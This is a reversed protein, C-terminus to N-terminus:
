GVENMEATIYQEGYYADYVVARLLDLLEADSSSLNADERSQYVKGDGDAFYRDSDALAVSQCLEILRWYRSMPVGALRLVDAGLSAYGTNATKGALQKRLTRDNSWILYDTTYLTQLEELSIDSMTATETLGLLHFINEDEGVSLNPRHDGFAVLLVPEDLGSLRKTLEGLARDAYVTGETVCQFIQAAEGTLRDSTATVGSAETFKTDVYPQHNEMTIGFLFAREGKESLRELEDCLLDVFYDDAIYAGHFQQNEMGDEFVTEGFGLLPFNVTRNYLESTHAHYAATHYGSQRFLEPMAALRTYDAEPLFCVNVGYNLYRSNIGSLVGMEIYGTGFGLYRSYFTGTLSDCSLKHFNEVPDESFSVNPLRTLDFQSEQQLVIVHPLDEAEAAAVEEEALLEDIRTLVNKMYAYSYHRLEEKVSVSADRWIGAVAGYASYTLETEQRTQMDLSFAEGLPTAGNGFVFIILFSLSFTLTLFRTRQGARSLAPSLTWLLVAIVAVAALLWPLAASVPLDGAVETVSRLTGLLRLDELTIPAGNIIAKCYNAFGFLIATLSPLLFSVSLERTLLFLFFMVSALLIATLYLVDAPAFVALRALRVSEAAYASFVGLFLFLVAAAPLGLWAPLRHARSFCRARHLPRSIIWRFFARLDTLLDELRSLLFLFFARVCLFLFRLTKRGCLALFPLAKERCFRLFAKGERLSFAGFIRLERWSFRAFRCLANGLFRVFHAAARGAFRSFVAVATFFLYFREGVDQACVRLGLRATRPLTRLDRFHLRRFLLEICVRAGFRLFFWLWWLLSAAAGVFSRLVAAVLTAARAIRLEGKTRRRESM